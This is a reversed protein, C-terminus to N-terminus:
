QAFRDDPRDAPLRHIMDYIDISYGVHAIPRLGILESGFPKEQFLKGDRQFTSFISPYLDFRFNKSVALLDNATYGPPMVDYGGHAKDLHAWDRPRERIFLRVTVSRGAAHQALYDALRAQDQGWDLNSDLLWRQGNFPGGSIFNFFALYDPHVAATEVCGVAALVVLVVPGRGRSLGLMVLLYLMAIAPLIHRIGIDIHGLMAPVMFTAFPILVVLWKRPRFAASARLGQGLPTPVPIAARNSRMKAWGRLVFFLTCALAALLAVPEKVLIAFPFYWWWGGVNARGLAYAIHGFEHQRVILVGYFFSPMPIPLQKLWAPIAAWSSSGVIPAANGIPGVDFFYTGWLVFVGLVGAVAAQV